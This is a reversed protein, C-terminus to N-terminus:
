LSFAALSSASQGVSSSSSSGLDDKPAVAAGLNSAFSLIPTRSSSGGFSSTDDDVDSQNPSEAISRLYSTTAFFRTSLKSKTALHDHDDDLTDDQYSGNPYEGRQRRANQLNAQASLRSSHIIDSVADPSHRRFLNPKRRWFRFLAVVFVLCASSIAVIALKRLKYAAHPVDVPHRQQPTDVMNSLLIQGTKLSFKLDGSKSAIGWQLELDGDIDDAQYVFAVTSACEDPHHRPTPVPSKTCNMHNALRSDFKAALSVTAGPPPTAREEVDGSSPNVWGSPWGVSGVVVSLDGFDERVLAWRVADVMADFLNWYPTGTVDVFEPADPKQKGFTAYELPIDYYSARWALYPDIEIVFPASTAQLHTLIPRLPGPAAFLSASPPFSSRLVSLSFGTSVPVSANQTACASAINRSANAVNSMWTVDAGVGSPSSVGVIVLDVVRSRVFDGVEECVKHAFEMSRGAESVEMDPVSVSILACSGLATAAEDIATSAYTLLRARCVGESRLKSLTSAVSVAATPARPSVIVGVNPMAPPLRKKRRRHGM